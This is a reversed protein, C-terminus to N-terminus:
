RAPAEAVDARRAEVLSTVTFCVVLVAEAVEDVVLPTLALGFRAGSIRDHVDRRFEAM